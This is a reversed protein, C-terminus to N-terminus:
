FFKSIKTLSEESYTQYFKKRNKYQGLIKNINVSGQISSLLRQDIVDEPNTECKITQGFKRLHQNASQIIAALPLANFKTATKWFFYTFLGQAKGKVNAQLSPKLGPSSCLSITNKPISGSCWVSEAGCCDSVILKCCEPKGLLNLHKTITSSRIYGNDFVIVGENDKVSGHGCFFVTLYKLDSALLIDFSTLFLRPPPNHMHIIKYNLKLHFNAVTISDNVPAPGLYFAEKEYSNCCIFCIREEGEIAQEIEINSIDTSIANLDMLADTLLKHSEEIM